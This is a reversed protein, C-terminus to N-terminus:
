AAPLRTQSNKTFRKISTTKTYHPRYCETYMTLRPPTTNSSNNFGIQSINLIVSIAPNRCEQINNRYEDIM